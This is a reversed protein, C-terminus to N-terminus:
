STSKDASPITIRYAQSEVELFKSGLLGAARYFRASPAQRLDEFFRGMWPEIHSAFFDYQRSVPCGREGSILLAMTDCLAAAHDEPEKVGPQREIRLERLDRRLRALPEEMLYGTLYWSGYPVVEGRGLGIFLAQYEDRLTETDARLAAARIERWGASLLGHDDASPEPIERLLNLLGAEPPAALMNGLLSYLDGRAQDEDTAAALPPATGARNRISDVDPM